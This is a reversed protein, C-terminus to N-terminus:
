LEVVMLFSRVLVMVPESINTNSNMMIQKRLQSVMGRNTSGTANPVNNPKDIMYQM